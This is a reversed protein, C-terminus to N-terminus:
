IIATDPTFYWFIWKRLDADAISELTSAVNEYRRPPNSATGGDTGSPLSGAYQPNKFFLRGGEHRLALVAHAGYSQGTPPPGWPPVGWYTAVLVQQQKAPLAAFLGDAITSQISATTSSNTPAVASGTFTVAFLAELLRKTQDPLLGNKHVYTFMAKASTEDGTDAPFSGAHAFKIAAGQFALEAYNRAYFGTGGPAGPQAYRAIQLIGRPLAVISGNALEAKAESSLWGLQLRVYEAPNVTIMMTQISTPVCTGAAGQNVRGNPDLVEHLVDAVLEERTMVVLDPHIHVTLLDLLLSLLTKGGKLAMKKLVPTQVASGTIAQRSLLVPIDKRIKSSFLWLRLVDGREAVTFRRFEPHAFVAALSMRSPDSEPLKNWITTLITGWLKPFGPIGGMAQVAAADPIVRSVASASLALIGIHPAAMASAKDIVGSDDPPPLTVRQAGLAHDPPWIEAKSGGPPTVSVRYYLNRSFTSTPPSNLTKLSEEVYAEWLAKPMVWTARNANLTIREGPVNVTMSGGRDRTMTGSIGDASSYYRLLDLYKAPHLLAQPDWALEVVAEGNENSNIEFVPPDGGGPWNPIFPHIRVWGM